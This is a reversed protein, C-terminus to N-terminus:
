NMGVMLVKEGCICVEKHTHALCLLTHRHLKLNACSWTWNVTWKQNKGQPFEAGAKVSLIEWLVWSTQLECKICTLWLRFVFVGSQFVHAFEDRQIQGAFHLLRDFHTKNGSLTHMIVTGLILPATSLDNVLSVKCHWRLWFVAFVCYGTMDGAKPSSWHGPAVAPYHASTGTSCAQNNEPHTFLSM